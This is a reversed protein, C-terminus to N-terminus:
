SNTLMCRLLVQIGRGAPSVDAWLRISYSEDNNDDNDDHCHGSLPTNAVCGFKTYTRTSFGGRRVWATRSVSYGDTRTIENIKVEIKVLVGHPVCRIKESKNFFNIFSM